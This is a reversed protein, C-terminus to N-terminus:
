TNVKKSSASPKGEGEEKEEGQKKKVPQSSATFVTFVQSLFLSCNEFGVFALGSSQPQRRRSRRQQKTKNTPRLHRRVLPRTLEEALQVRVAIATQRVLLNVVAQVPQPERGVAVQPLLEEVLGVLVAVASNVLLFEDPKAGKRVQKKRARV